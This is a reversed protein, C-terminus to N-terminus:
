NLKELFRSEHMKQQLAFLFIYYNSVVERFKRSYMSIIICMVNYVDFGYLAIMFISSFM